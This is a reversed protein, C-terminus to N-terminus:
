TYLVGDLAADEIDHPPRLNHGCRPCFRAGPPLPALCRVHPCRRNTASGSGESLPMGALERVRAALARRLRPSQSRMYRQQAAGTMALALGWWAGKSAFMLGAIIWLFALGIGVRPLPVRHVGASHFIRNAYGVFRRVDSAHAQVQLWHFLYAISLGIGWVAYLQQAMTLPPQWDYFNHFRYTYALVQDGIPRGSGVLHSGFLLVVGLVALMSLTALLPRAGLDEGAVRLEMTEPRNSHLRMWEAFKRLHRREDDVFDRFRDHWLLGPLMGFSIFGVVSSALVGWPRPGGDAGRELENVLARTAQQEDDRDDFFNPRLGSVV